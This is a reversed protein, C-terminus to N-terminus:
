PIRPNPPSGEFRPFSTFTFPEGRLLGSPDLVFHHSNSSIFHTLLCRYVQYQAAHYKPTASTITRYTNLQSSHYTRARTPNLNLIALPFRFHILRSFCCPTIFCMRYPPRGVTDRENSAGTRYTLYLSLGRHNEPV